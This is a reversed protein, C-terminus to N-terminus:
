ATGFWKADKRRPPFVVQKKDSNNAPIASMNTNMRPELCLVSQCTVSIPISGSDGNVAMPSLRIREIVKLPSVIANM